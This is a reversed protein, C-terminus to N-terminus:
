PYYLARASRATGCYIPLESGISIAGAKTQILVEYAQLSPIEEAAWELHRTTTLLLSHNHM